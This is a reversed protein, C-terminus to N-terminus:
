GWRKQAIAALAMVALPLLALTIQWAQRLRQSMSAEEVKIALPRERDRDPPGRCATGVLVAQFRVV